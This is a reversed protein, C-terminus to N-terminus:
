LWKVFVQANAWILVDIICLHKETKLQLMEPNPHFVREVKQVTKVPLFVRVAMEQGAFLWSFSSLQSYHSTTSCLGVDYM